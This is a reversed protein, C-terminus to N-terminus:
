PTAPVAKQAMEQRSKFIEIGKVVNIARQLQIDQAAEVRAKDAAPLLASSNRLYLDRELEPSIAAEIDPSVGVEHILKHAPTYYRATTLRLAAPPVSREIPQVTQVSGKGFTTEGILVARRLDKLAGAVIEAGSASNGNILIVLPLDLVKDAGHAYYLNKEVEGLRGETSAIAVGQPVFKGAVEVAAELLGGPNNRLDMILCEAGQSQLKKLATNMEPVTNEGFQTIRFYGIKWPATVKGPLLAADRISPVNIIERTITIEKFVNASPRYVTLKITTGPDGRMLKISDSLAMDRTPKDDIKVIRDGPMVGAREGPGGEVPVNVTVFGESVGVSLGLGGFRGETETKMNAFVDPSMFQSHPDLSSLMGRLAAYTLDDYDVKKENVYEDRVLELVSSFLLTSRYRAEAEQRAKKEMESAPPAGANTTAAPSNSSAPQQAHATLLSLTAVALLTAVLRHFRFFRM